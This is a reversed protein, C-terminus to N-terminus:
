QMAGAPALVIARRACPSAGFTSVWDASANVPGSSTAGAMFGRMHAAGTVCSFTRASSARPTSVIPGSDPSIASPSCPAPRMDSGSSIAPRM